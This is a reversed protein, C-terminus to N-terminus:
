KLQQSLKWLPSVKRIREKPLADWYIKGETQNIDFEVSGAPTVAGNMKVDWKDRPLTDGTIQNESVVALITADPRIAGM